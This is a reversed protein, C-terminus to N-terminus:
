IRTMCCQQNHSTHRHYRKRLCCQADHVCTRDSELKDNLHGQLNSDELIYITSLTHYKSSVQRKKIGQPFQAKNHKRNHGKEAGASMKRMRKWKRIKEVVKV